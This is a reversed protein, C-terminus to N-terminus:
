KEAVKAKLRKVLDAYSSGVIISNFQTRYNNVLSVGEISVDYVLWNNEKKQLRYEVPIDVNKRTVIKVRVVAYDGELTDGEYQVKEGSYGEIKDMYTRELLDGFLRIFEKKEEDTRQAWHRALSRRAMEEWDFRQDVANRIRRRREEAKSPVKLAPDSVISLITDTTQKIQDMPEGAWAPVAIGLILFLFVGERVRFAQPMPM